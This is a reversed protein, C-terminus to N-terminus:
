EKAEAEPSINIKRTHNVILPLIRSAHLIGLTFSFGIAYIIALLRVLEVLQKIWYIM